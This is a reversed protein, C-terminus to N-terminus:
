SVDILMIDPDTLLECAINARKKEGGSLGRNFMDGIVSLIYNYAKSLMNLSTEFNYRNCGNQHYMFM